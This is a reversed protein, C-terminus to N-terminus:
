LSSLHATDNFAVLQPQGADYRIRTISAPAFFLSPADLKNEFIVDAFAHLVGAHSVVLVRQPAAAGIDGLFTRVRDCVLGFREGGDPTYNRASTRGSQAARPYKAVIEDWTLGEWTGFDFERLREDLRVELGHSAAISAATERARILDSAYVADLKEGRM